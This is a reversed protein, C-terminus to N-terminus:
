MEEMEVTLSGYRIGKAKDGYFYLPSPETFDKIHMEKEFRTDGRDFIVTCSVAERAARLLAMQEVTLLNLKATLSVKESGTRDILYDGALNTQKSEMRYVGAIELESVNPYETGNINLYYKM